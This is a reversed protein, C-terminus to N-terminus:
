GARFVHHVILEELYTMAAASYKKDGSFLLDYRIGSGIAVHKVSQTKRAKRYLELLPTHDTNLNDCVAPYICSPRSCKKCRSMDIGHMKYMNASPGGLDSIHGKFANSQSIKSVEKMISKESRSSIWKGQHAAITCFACGGFCGRHIAVSDRIM